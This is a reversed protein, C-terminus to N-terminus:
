QVHARRRLARLTGSVTKVDCAIESGDISHTLTLAAMVHPISTHYCSIVFQRRHKKSRVRKLGSSVFAVAGFLRVFTKTIADWLQDHSVDSPYISVSIYRRRLRLM